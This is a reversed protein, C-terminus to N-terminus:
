IFFCVFIFVIMYFLCVFIFVVFTPVDFSSYQLVKIQNNVGEPSWLASTNIIPDKFIKEDPLFHCHDDFCVYTM